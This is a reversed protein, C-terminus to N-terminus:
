VSGDPQCVNYSVLLKLIMMIQPTLIHHPFLIDTKSSIFCTLLQIQNSGSHLCHLSLFVLVSQSIGPLGKGGYKEEVKLVLCYEKKSM